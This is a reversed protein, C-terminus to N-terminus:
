VNYWTVTGANLGLSFSKSVYLNGIGKKNKMLEDADENSNLKEWVKKMRCHTAWLGLDSCRTVHVSLGVHHLLGRTSV